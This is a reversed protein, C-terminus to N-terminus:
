LILYFYIKRGLPDEDTRMLQLNSQTLHGEIQRKCYQLFSKKNITVTERHSMSSSSRLFFTTM